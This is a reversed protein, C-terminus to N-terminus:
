IKRAMSSFPVPSTLSGVPDESSCLDFSLLQITMMTCTISYIYQLSLSHNFKVAKRPCYVGLDTTLKTRYRLGNQAWDCWISWLKSCEWSVQYSSVGHIVYTVLVSTVTCFDSAMKSACIFNGWWCKPAKSLEGTMASVCLHSEIKAM